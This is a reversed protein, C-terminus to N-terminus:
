RVVGHTSWHIAAVHSHTTDFDLDVPGSTKTSGAGFQAESFEFGAPLAVRVRHPAGTIPNRIPASSSDILGPVRLSASAAALDIGLEIPKYQTPLFTTVTTSFVQWVLSGADTERGHSVAELAARQQADARDDVVSMLTGGGLHIPGPWFALIGWCLGDLPVAGFRGQEIRVFTHARCHGKDPLSNFQCPCGPHCNCNAFEAGRMEWEVFAM